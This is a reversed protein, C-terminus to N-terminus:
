KWWYTDRWGRWVLAYPKHNNFLMIENFLAPAIINDNYDILGIKNYHKIIIWYSNAQLISDYKTIIFEEGKSNILGAKKGKIAVYVHPKLRYIKDYKPEVLEQGYYDILGFKNNKSIICVSDAYTSVESYYPQAIMNEKDDVIAWKDKIKVGCRNQAVDQVMKYQTAITLSGKLNIYGYYNYMKVRSFGNYFPCIEQYHYFTDLLQIGESDVLARYKKQDRFVYVGSSFEFVLESSIPPVIYTGDYAIIGIKDKYNVKFAKTYPLTEFCPFLTDSKLLGNHDIIGCYGKKCWKFYNKKIYIISDAYPSLRIKGQTDIIGFKNGEKFLLISDNVFYLSDYYAQLLTDGTFSIINWKKTSTDKILKFNTNHYFTCFTSSNKREQNINDINAFISDLGDKTGKYLLENKRNILHHLDNYAYYMVSDNILKLSDALIELTDSTFGILKYRNFHLAQVLNYPNISINKYLIELKLTNNTTLVGYKQDIKVICFSDNKVIISDYICPITIKSQKANFLGFKLNQIVIAQHHNIFYISDFSCPLIWKGKKQIGYCKEKKIIKYQDHPTSKSFLNNCLIISIIFFYYYVKYLM